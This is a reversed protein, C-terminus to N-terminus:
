RTATEAERCRKSVDEWPLEFSLLNGRATTRAQAGEMEELRKEVLLKLAYVIGDDHVHGSAHYGSHILPGGTWASTGSRSCWPGM